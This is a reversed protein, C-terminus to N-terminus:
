AGPRPHIFTMSEMAGQSSPDTAISLTTSSAPTCTWLRPVTASSVERMADIYAPLHTNFPQPAFGHGLSEMESDILREGIVVIRDNHRFPTTLM